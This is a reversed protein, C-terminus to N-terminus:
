GKGIRKYERLVFVAALVCLLAVPVLISEWCSCGREVPGTFVFRHRAIRSGDGSVITLSVNRGYGVPECGLKVVRTEGATLNEIRASEFVWGLPHEDSFLVAEDVDESSTVYVDVGDERTVTNVINLAGEKASINDARFGYPELRFTEGCMYISPFATYNGEELLNYMRWRSFTGAMLNEEHGWVSRVFRLASSNTQNYQGFEQYFDIRPRARCSVSGVNSWEIDFVQVPREKVRMFDLSGKIVPNVTVDFRVGYAPAALLLLFAAVLVILPSKQLLLAANVRCCTKKMFARNDRGAM